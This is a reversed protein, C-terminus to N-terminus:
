FFDVKDFMMKEETTLSYDDPVINPTVLIVLESKLSKTAKTKFLNGLVPIDGLWPIKTEVVDEDKRRLGGIALTQGNKMLVTVDAMRTDIIPISTVSAGSAATQVEVDGKHLTQKPIVHLLIRGDSTIQPAVSLTIGSKKDFKAEGTLTNTQQDLQFEIYPLEETTEFKSETNNLAILRPNALLEARETEIMANLAMTVSKSDTFIDFMFNGTKANTFSGAALPNSIIGIANTVSSYLPGAIPSYGGSVINAGNVSGSLIVDWGVGIDKNSDIDLSVMRIDIMVQQIPKDLKKILQEVQAMLDAPATVIITGAGTIVQSRKTGTATAPAQLTQIADVKLLNNIAVQIEEVNAYDVAFVKTVPGAPKPAVAPKFEPKQFVRVASDSIKEYSFGNIELINKLVEGVPQDKVEITVKGQVEPGAYINLDSKMALVRIVDPLNAQSFAVSVKQEIPPVPAPPPVVEVAKVETVATKGTKKAAPKLGFKAADVTIIMGDKDNAVAIAELASKGTASPALHIVCRAVVPEKAEFQSIVCKLVASKAEGAKASILPPKVAEGPIDFYVMNKLAKLPGPKAEASVGPVVIKVVDGEQNIKLSNIASLAQVTCLIGIALGSLIVQGKKQYLKKTVLNMAPNGGM